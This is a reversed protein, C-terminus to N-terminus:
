VNRRPQGITLIPQRPGPGTITVKPGNTKPKQIIHTSYRCKETSRIVGDFITARNVRAKTVFSYQSKTCTFLPTPYLPTPVANGGVVDFFDEVIVVGDEYLRQYVQMHSLVTLYWHVLQVFNVFPVIVTAFRTSRM